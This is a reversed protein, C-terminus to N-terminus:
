RANGGILGDDGTFAAVSSRKKRVTVKVSDDNGTSISDDFRLLFLIFTYKM